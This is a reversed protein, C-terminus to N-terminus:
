PCCEHTSTEMLEAIKLQVRQMEEEHAASLESEETGRLKASLSLNWNSSKSRRCDATTRMKEKPVRGQTAKVLEDEAKLRADIELDLETQIKKLRKNMNEMQEQLEFLELAEKEEDIARELDSKKAIFESM